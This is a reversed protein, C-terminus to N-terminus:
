NLRQKPIRHFASIFDAIERRDVLHEFATRVSDYVAQVDRPSLSKLFPKLMKFIFYHTESRIRSLGHSIFVFVISQVCRPPKGKSIVQIVGKALSEPNLDHHIINWILGDIVFKSFSKEKDHMTWFFTQLIENYNQKCNFYVFFVLITLSYKYDIMQSMVVSCFLELCQKTDQLENDDLKVMSRNVTYHFYHHLWEATLLDLPPLHIEPFAAVFKNYPSLLTVLRCIISYATAKLTQKTDHLLDKMIKLLMVSQKKILDLVREKSDTNKEEILSKVEWQITYLCITATPTIIAETHNEMGLKLASFAHYVLVTDSVDFFKALYVNTKIVKTQKLQMTELLYEEILERCSDRLKYTADFLALKMGPIENEFEETKLIYNYLCLLTKHVAAQAPSSHLNHRINLLVCFWSKVATENTKITEENTKTTPAPPYEELANHNGALFNVYDMVEVFIISPTAGYKETTRDDELIVKKWSSWSTLIKQSPNYMRRVIVQITKLKNVDAMNSREMQRLTEEIFMCFCDLYDENSQTRCMMKEHVYEAVRRSLVQDTSLLLLYIFGPSFNLSELLIPDRKEIMATVTLASIAVQTSEDTIRKPIAKLIVEIFPQITPCRFFDDIGILKGCCEVVYKRIFPSHDALSWSFPCLIESNQFKPAGTMILRFYLQCATKRITLNSDRQSSWLFKLFTDFTRELKQNTVLPEEWEPLPDRPLHLTYQNLLLGGIICAAYRALPWVSYAFLELAVHMKYALYKDSLPGYGLAAQVFEIFNKMYGNNLIFRKSLHENVSDDFAEQLEKTICPKNDPHKGKKDFTKLNELTVDITAGVTHIFLEIMSRYAEQKSNIFTECWVDALTRTNCGEIALLEKLLPVILQPYRSQSKHMFLTMMLNYRERSEPPISEEDDLVEGSLHRKEWEELPIALNIIIQDEEEVTLWSSSSSSKDNNIEEISDDSEETSSEDFNLKRPIPFM